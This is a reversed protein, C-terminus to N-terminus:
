IGVSVQHTLASSSLCYGAEHWTVVFGSATRKAACFVVLGHDSCGGEVHGLVLLSVIIFGLVGMEHPLRFLEIRRRGDLRGMDGHGVRAAGDKGNETVTSRRYQHGDRVFINELILIEIQVEEQEAHLYTM